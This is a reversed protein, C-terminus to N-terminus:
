GTMSPTEKCCCRCNPTYTPLTHEQLYPPPIFQFNGCKIKKHIKFYPSSGFQTLSSLFILFKGHYGRQVHPRFTKLGGQLAQPFHLFDFIQIRKQSHDFHIRDLRSYVVKANLCSELLMQPRWPGRKAWLTYKIGNMAM